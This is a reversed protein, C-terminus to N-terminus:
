ATYYPQQATVILTNRVRSVTAFMRQRAIAPDAM